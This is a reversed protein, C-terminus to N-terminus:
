LWFPLEGEHSQPKVGAKILRRLREGHHLTVPLRPKKAHPHLLTMELTTRAAKELTFRGSVDIQIPNPPMAPHPPLAPILLGRKKDLRFVTGTPPQTIKKGTFAYIRPASATGIPTIHLTMDIDKADSNLADIETDNLTDTHQLVVRTGRFFAEPFLHAAAATDLTGEHLVYGIFVGDSRYVTVIFVDPEGRVATLGVIVEAYPLPEGPGFPTYGVCLAFAMATEGPAKKILMDKEFVCLSPVGAALIERKINVYAAWDDAQSFANPEAGPIFVVVADPETLQSYAAKAENPTLGSTPVQQVNAVPVNIARLAAILQDDFKAPPAEGLANVIGIRVPREVERASFMGATRMEDWLKNPNYPRPQGDGLTIQPKFDYDAAAMFRSDEDSSKYSDGIYDMAKLVDAAAAVARAREGINQYSAQRAEDANIRLRAYDKASLAIYMAHAPFEYEGFFTRVKIVPESDHARDIRKQADNTRAFQKLTDRKDGVTGSVAVVLGSLLRWDLWPSRSVVTMGVLGNVNPITAAYEALDQRYILRQLVGISIAPAGDVEWGKFTPEHLSRFNGQLPTQMSQALQDSLGPIFAGILYEAQAVASPRYRKVKELHLTAPDFAKKDPASDTLILGDARVWRGEFQRALQSVTRQSPASDDEPRYAALKPLVAANIPFLETFLTHNSM